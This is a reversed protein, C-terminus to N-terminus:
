GGNVAKLIEKFGSNMESRMARQETRLDDIDEKINKVDTEMATVKLPTKKLDGINHENEVVKGKLEGYGILSMFVFVTMFTPITFGNARKAIEKIGM